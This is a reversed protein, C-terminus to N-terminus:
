VHPPSARCLWGKASNVQQDFMQLVLTNITEWGSCVHRACEETTNRQTKRASVRVSELTHQAHAKVACSESKGKQGSCTDRVHRVSDDLM